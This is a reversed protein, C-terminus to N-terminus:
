GQTGKGAERDKARTHGVHWWKGGCFECRYWSMCAGDLEHLRHAHRRAAGETAFRTKGECSRRRLRRKSAM